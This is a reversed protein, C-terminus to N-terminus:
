KNVDIAYPQLSTQKDGAVLVCDDGVLKTLIHWYVQGEPRSTSNMSPILSEVVGFPVAWVRGTDLASLVLYGDSAESLYARQSDYYGYWYSQYDRDYRKSVSIVARVKDDASEFLSRRRRTLRIGLKESLRGAAIQRADEIGASPPSSPERTPAELESKAAETVISEDIPVPEDTDARVEFMLDVIGDIRTYEIPRLLSKIRTVVTLSEANVKVQLLRVLSAAGIMRMTWAHKSGRIQAELAGTEDRGVVFLVTSSEAIRGAEILEHRYREVQDLAITYTDTTKVEIVLDTGAGDQWIGDYGTAGRRGQYLGNVVSFDLRRGIENVVDQLVFGSDPFGKRAIGGPERELCEAVFRELDDAEVESLLTRLETSCATSDLVRGDGALNVIQRLSLKRVEDPRDRWLALLPGAVDPKASINM